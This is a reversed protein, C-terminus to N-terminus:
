LLRVSEFTARPDASESPNFKENLRWIEGNETLVHLPWLLERLIKVVKTNGLQPKCADQVFAGGTVLRTDNLLGVIGDKTWAPVNIDRWLFQDVAGLKTLVTPTVRLQYVDKPNWLYVGPESPGWVAVGNDQTIASFRYTSPTISKLNRLTPHLAPTPVISNPQDIGFSNFEGAALVRPTAFPSADSPTAAGWYYVQGASDQVFIAERTDTLLKDINAIRSLRTPVILKNSDTVGPDRGLLNNVEKSWTFIEGAATLAIGTSRRHQIDVVNSLGQVRISQLTNAGLSPLAAINPVANGFSGYTWVSGDIALGIFNGRSGMEAKKLPGFASIKLPTTIAELVSGSPWPNLGWLWVYGDVDLASTPSILKAIPRNIALKIPVDIQAPSGFPVGMLGDSNSGFLYVNGTKTLVSYRYPNASSSYSQSPKADTIVEGPLSPV